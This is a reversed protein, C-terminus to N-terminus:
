DHPRHISILRVLPANSRQPSLTLVGSRRPLAIGAILTDGLLRRCSVALLTREAAAEPLLQPAANSAEGISELLYTIEHGLTRDEDGVTAPVSLNDYREDL